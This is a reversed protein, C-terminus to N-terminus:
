TRKQRKSPPPILPAEVIVCDDDSLEPEHMGSSLTASASRPQEQYHNDFDDILIPASPTTKRNAASGLKSSQPKSSFFTTIATKADPMSSFQGFCVSIWRLNWPEITEKISQKFMELAAAVIADKAYNGEDPDFGKALCTVFVDANM